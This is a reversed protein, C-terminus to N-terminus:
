ETKGPEDISEAGPTASTQKLKDAFVERLRQWEMKFWPTFREHSAALEADLDVASIWRWEDIETTNIRPKQSTQGIYVWCLEHEAGLNGFRAQYEFKYIFSVPTRLGLEQSMRRQVADDMTEGQRPHSCCSNSWFSPWLRKGSARRQLLLEGAPNFIFLSFARHLVGSGDHCATKELYGIERDGADVLILPERDNSVIESKTLPRSV